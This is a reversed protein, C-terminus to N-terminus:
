NTDVPTKSQLNLTFGSGEDGSVIVQLQDQAILQYDLRKPFDHQPNEFLAQQDPCRVLKFAVEDPNDAVKVLYFIGGDRQLIRMSESFRVEGSTKEITWGKGQYDGAAERQWTENTTQEEGPAFWDGILWTLDNLSTCTDAMATQAGVSTVAAVLLNTLLHKM